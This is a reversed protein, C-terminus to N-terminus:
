RIPALEELPTAITPPVQLHATEDVLGKELLGYGGALLTQAAAYKAVDDNRRIERFQSAIRRRARRCFFDALEFAGAADADGARRMGEARAVAASM